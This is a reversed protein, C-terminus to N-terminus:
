DSLSNSIIREQSLPLPGTGVCQCRCLVSFSPNSHAWFTGPRTHHGRWCCSGLTKLAWRKGPSNGGVQSNCDGEAQGPGHEQSRKLKTFFVLSFAFPRKNILMARKKDAANINNVVKRQFDKEKKSINERKQNM